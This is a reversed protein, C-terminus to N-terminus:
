KMTFFSSATGRSPSRMEVIAHHIVRADSVMRCDDNRFHGSRTANVIPSDMATPKIELIYAYEDTMFAINTVAM